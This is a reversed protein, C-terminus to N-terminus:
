VKGLTRLACAWGFKSIKQFKVELFIGSDHRITGIKCNRHIYNMFIEIITEKERERERETEEQADGGGTKQRSTSTCQM